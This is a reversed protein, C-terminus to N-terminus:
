LKIKTKLELEEIKAEAKRAREIARNKDLRMDSLLKDSANLDIEISNVYVAIQHMAHLLESLKPTPKEDYKKKILNYVKNFNDTYMDYKVLAVNKYNAYEM